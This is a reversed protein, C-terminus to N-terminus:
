YLWEFVLKPKSILGSATKTDGSPELSSDTVPSKLDDSVTVDSVNVGTEIPTEQGNEEPTLASDEPYQTSEVAETVEEVVDVKKVLGLKLVEQEFSDISGLLAVRVIANNGRIEAVDVRATSALRGLARELTFFADANVLGNFAVTVTGESEGSVVSTNKSAYYDSVQAILSQTAQDGSAGGTIPAIQTKGLSAPSQDYLSWRLQRGDAKIVMVADVPYRLTAQGISGVFGGWLDTSQIGTMDDFDGVPFTLPLGRKKAETRLQTAIASNSHEWIISRDYGNDEVLWVMVNSREAPWSALEAQKLLVDIQNSNFKMKLAQEGDVQTYGLQSIYRSSQGLAKKVVSNSAVNADGSARVLVELMGQQRAIEDANPEETNVAIQTSYIDVKTLAYAPLSCLGVLLWAFYRM